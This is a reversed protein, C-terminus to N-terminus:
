VSDQVERELHEAFRRWENACSRALAAVTYLVHPSVASALENWGTPGVARFHLWRLMARGADSLRLSPDQRLRGLLV